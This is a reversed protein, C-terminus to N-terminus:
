ESLLDEALEGVKQITEAPLATYRETMAENTHGTLRRLIHDEVKGRMMSNYWHRWAHFSLKRRRREAEPIGIADLTLKYSREIMTASIPRDRLNGWFVFANRWPNAGALERLMAETRAPLPVDRVSGWKPAKLGEGDQWNRCVHIYGPRIDETQLGRVEGLRMGTTAALLNAALYRRDTWRCSFFARVEELSLIERRPKKEPLKEVQAAPNAVILGNRWAEAIPVAVAKRVQNILTASKGESRMWQILGELLSATMRSIPLRAKGKAELYPKVYRAIQAALTETYRKSLHRDRAERKLIYASGPLWFGELYGLLTEASRLPLGEALAMRAAADVESKRTPSLHRAKEGLGRILKDASRRIRYSSREEDWFAVHYVRGDAQARKYIIYPKRM